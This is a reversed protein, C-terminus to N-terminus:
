AREESYRYILNGEEDKGAPVVIGEFMRYPSQGRTPDNWLRKMYDYMMLGRWKAGDEAKTHHVVNGVRLKKMYLLEPEIDSWRVEGKRKAIMLAETFQGRCYNWQPALGCCSGNACREKFHADSVYFRMGLKRCLAQMRDVHKRKVNRNLRQYGSGTSYRKYFEVVDFGVVRSMQPYRVAMGKKSRLELCFFETSLATAGADHARRILDDCTRESLGIIFPRLRLTVGGTAFKAAARMAEIRKEPSPCGAEVVRAAQQDMTIISFKVNWPMGEFMSAYREDHAWWAGKTSFCLPYRIMRFFAMLELTVGYRREYNDFPDTLGGWQLVKRSKIYPGFEGAGSHLGDTFLRQIREPRVAGVQARYNQAIEKQFNSFCYLCKYSCHTYTDLTMPMSCDPMEGSWRPSGYDGSLEERHTDSAGALPKYITKEM